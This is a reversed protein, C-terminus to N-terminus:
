IIGYKLVLYWDLDADNKGVLFRPLDAATGGGAAGRVAGTFLVGDPGGAAAFAGDM